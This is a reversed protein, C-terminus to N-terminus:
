TNDVQKDEGTVVFINTDGYIYALLYAPFQLGSHRLSILYNVSKLIFM